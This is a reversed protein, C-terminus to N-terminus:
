FNKLYHENNTSDKGPADWFQGFFNQIVCEQRLSMSSVPLPSMEPMVGHGRDPIEAASLPDDALVRSLFIGFATTPDHIMCAPAGLIITKGVRAYVSM